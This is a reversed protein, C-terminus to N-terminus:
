RDADLSRARDRRCGIGGRAIVAAAHDPRAPPHGPARRLRRGVPGPIARRNSAIGGPDGRGGDFSRGRDRAASRGGGCCEGRSWCILPGAPLRGRPSCGRWWGSSPFRPVSRRLRRPRDRPGRRLFLAPLTGQRAIRRLGIGVSALGDAVAFVGFMLTLVTLSPRPMFVSLVRLGLAVVGLVLLLVCRTTLEAPFGTVARRASSADTM